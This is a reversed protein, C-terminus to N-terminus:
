QMDNGTPCFRFEAGIENMLCFTTVYERNRETSYYTIKGIIYAIKKDELRAMHNREMQLGGVMPLIRNANPPLVTPAAGRYRQILELTRGIEAAMDPPVHMPVEYAKGVETSISAYDPIQEGGMRNTFVANVILQVAPTKGTNEMVGFMNGIHLTEIRNFPQFPQSPQDTQPQKLESTCNECRFDRLGVWPRRDQRASEISTDLAIKSQRNSADLADKANDAIRQEQSVINEAAQRMKEAADSQKRAYEVLKDTQTGGTIMEYLQGAFVIGTVITVALGWRTLRVISREFATMREGIQEEIKEETERLQQETAPQAPTTHKAAVDIPIAPYGEPQQENSEANENV